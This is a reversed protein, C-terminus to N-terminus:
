FQKESIINIFKYTLGYNTDTEWMGSIKLLFQNNINEFNDSFIKINGNKVHEYIKFNPVKDRIKNKYLIDEEIQKIKDILDKHLSIDFNCRFKNYYKEINLNQFTILLYVGNLMFLNNSYLIRIFLGDNMINNKIADCFYVNDIDFQNIKKIINM